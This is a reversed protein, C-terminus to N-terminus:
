NLDFLDKIVIQVSKQISIGESDTVKVILKHSFGYNDDAYPFTLKIADGNTAVLDDYITKDGDDIYGDDNLDWAIVCDKFPIHDDVDIDYATFELECSDAMEYGYFIDQNDKNKVTNKFSISPGYNGAKIAAVITNVFLKNEIDSTMNAHGAGSYTINGKSYIYYNNAADGKMNGYFSAYSGGDSGLTYWVTVDDSGDESAELDLQYYQAHTTAITLQDGIVYPYLTVQGTNTKEAKTTTCNAGTSMGYPLKANYGSLAFRLASYNSIGQILTDSKAATKKKAITVGYRDMGITNRFKATLNYGWASGGYISSNTVPAFYTKGSNTYTSYFNASSVYSLTDHAFLVSQGSDIFAKLNNLADQNTIDTYGYGDAFGLVVMQYVGNLRDTAPNASNYKTGTTFMNEYQTTTKKTVTIKYQAINKFLNTFPATSIDLTITGPPVIFLVNINRVQEVARATFGTKTFRMSPNTNNQAVLKWGILGEAGTPWDGYIYVDGTDEDIETTTVAKVTYDADFQGLGSKDIYVSFTYNEASGKTVALDFDISGSTDLKGTYGATVGEDYQLPMQVIEFEAEQDNILTHYVGTKDVSRAFIESVLNSGTQAKADNLFQYLYSQSDLISTNTVFTYNGDTVSYSQPGYLTTDLMVPQGSKIYDLLQKEKKLTIDNGGLRVDGLSSNSSVEEKVNRLVYYKTSTLQAALSATWNNALTPYTLVSSTYGSWTTTVQKYDSPLLGQLLTSVKIKDGIHTYVLGDMTDDNYDTNLKDKVTGIYILDYQSNIDENVANFQNTTMTNVKVYQQYNSETIFSPNVQMYEAILKAAAYTNMKFSNCPEIELVTIPEMSDNAYYGFLYRLIDFKSHMSEILGSTQNADATLSIGSLISKGQLYGDSNYCFIKKYIYPSNDNIGIGNPGYVPGTLTLNTFGSKYSNALKYAATGGYLTTSPFTTSSWAATSKNYVGTADINSKFSSTFKEYTMQRILLLMKYMKNTSGANNNGLQTILNSNYILAKPNTSNMVQEYLVMAASWDQIDYSGEYNPNFGATYGLKGGKVYTDYAYALNSDNNKPSTIYILDAAKILDLHNQLDNARVVDVQIDGDLGTTMNGFFVNQNLSDEMTSKTIAYRNAKLTSDYTTSYEFGLLNSLYAINVTANEKVSVNISEITSKTIPEYGPVTYGLVQQGDVAVIELIRIKSDNDEASANNYLLIIFAGIAALLATGAGFFTLFKRKQKVKRIM